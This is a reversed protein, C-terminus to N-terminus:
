LLAVVADVKDFEDEREEYEENEELVTFNPAFASWSETRHRTWIYVCGTAGLSAVIPRKPNWQAM